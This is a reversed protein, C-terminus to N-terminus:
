RHSAELEQASETLFQVLGAAVACSDEVTPIHRANPIRLLRAGPIEREDREAHGVLQFEDDEGWVLLTPLARDRLRDLFDLTYRADAAGAM